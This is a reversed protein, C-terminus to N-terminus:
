GGRRNRVAEWAERARIAREAPARELASVLTEEVDEVAVGVNLAGRLHSYLQKEADQTALLAIICLERTPLDLGARSIVKGYGAVIMWRELDPHLQGVNELLKAHQEGYVKQFTQAGRAAWEDEDGAPSAAAPAPAITRWVQFANLVRPYGVFLHSQLLVEDVEALSAHTAATSLAAHLGDREDAGIAIAVDVLARTARNM